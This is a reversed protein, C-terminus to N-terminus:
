KKRQNQFWRNCIICHKWKTVITHKQFTRKRNEIFKKKARFSVNIMMNNVKPDEWLKKEAWGGDGYFIFLNYKKNQHHSSKTEIPHKSFWCLSTPRKEHFIAVPSWIFYINVVLFFTSTRRTLKRAFANKKKEKETKRKQYLFLYRLCFAM